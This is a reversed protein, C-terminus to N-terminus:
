SSSHFFHDHDDRDFFQAISQAVNMFQDFDAADVLAGKKWGEGAMSPDCMVFLWSEQTEVSWGRKDDFFKAREGAFLAEVREREKSRLLIGPRGEIVIMDGLKGAGLSQAINVIGGLVKSEFSGADGGALVSLTLRPPPHVLKFIACSM